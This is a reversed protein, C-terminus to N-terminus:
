HFIDEDIEGYSQNVYELYKLSPIICLHEGVIVEIEGVQDIESFQM